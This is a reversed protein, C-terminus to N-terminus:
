TDPLNKYFHFAFHYCNNTYINLQTDFTTTLQKIFQDQGMKDTADKSLQFSRIKGNVKGGKLLKLISGLDNSIEPVFDMEIGLCESVVSVHLKLWSPGELLPKFNLRIAKSTVKFSTSIVAFALFPLFRMIVLSM